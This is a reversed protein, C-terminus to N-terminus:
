HCRASARSLLADGKGERVAWPEVDYRVLLPRLLQAALRSYGHDVQHTVVTSTIWRVIAPPDSIAVGGQDEFRTGNAVPM